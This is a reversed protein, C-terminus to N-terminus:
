GPPPEVPPRSADDVQALARYEGPEVGLWHFIPAADPSLLARRAAVPPCHGHREELLRALERAGNGDM